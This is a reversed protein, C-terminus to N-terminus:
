HSGYVGDSLDWLRIATGSGARVVFRRDPSWATPGDNALIWMLRLPEARWVQADDLIIMAGDPSWEIGHPRAGRRPLTQRTGTLPNWLAIEVGNGIALWQGSPSWAVINSKGDLRLTRVLQGTGPDWLQVDGEFQYTALLSGDPSWAVEIWGAHHGGLTALRQGTVADWIRATADSGATALRRGDPSWSASTVREREHGRLVLVERCTSADVIPVLGERWHTVALRSGDPSWVAKITPSSYETRVPLSCQEGESAANWIHLVTESVASLRAGNPSWSLTFRSARDPQRTWTSQWSDTDWIRVVGVADITALRSGRPSWAASAMQVPLDAVNRGRVRGVEWELLPGGNPRSALGDPGLLWTTDTNSFAPVREAKRWVLLGGTTHQWWDTLEPDGYACELPEGVRDGLGDVLREFRPYITPRQGTGCHPAAPAPIPQGSILLRLRDQQLLALERARQDLLDMYRTWFQPDSREPLMSAWDPDEYGSGLGVSVGVNGVRYKYGTVFFEGGAFRYAQGDGLGPWPEVRVEFGRPAGERVPADDPDVRAQATAEDPGLFVTFYAGGGDTNLYRANLTQGGAERSERSPYSLWDPGLDEVAVPLGALDLSQARIPATGLLTGLILALILLRCVTGM